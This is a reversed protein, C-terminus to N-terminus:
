RPGGPHREEGRHVDSPGVARAKIAPVPVAVQAPRDLELGCYPLKGAVAVVDEDFDTGM